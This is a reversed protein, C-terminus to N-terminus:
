MSSSVHKKNSTPVPSQPHSVNNNLLNDEETLLNFAFEDVSEGGSSSETADSDYDEELHELNSRLQGAHCELTEADCPIVEELRKNDSQSQADNQSPHQRLISQVSPDAQSSVSVNNAVHLDCSSSPPIVLSSTLSSVDHTRLLKMLSPAEDSNLSTGLSSGDRENNNTLNNNNNINSASFKLSSSTKPVPIGKSHFVHHNQHLNNDLGKSIRDNKVANVHSQHYDKLPSSSNSAPSSPYHHHHHNNLLVHSNFPVTSRHLHHNAPQRMMPQIQCGIGTLSQERRLFSTIHKHLHRQTQRGQLRHIRQLLSSAQSEMKLFRGAEPEEEQQGTLDQGSSLSPCSSVPDKLQHTTRDDKVEGQVEEKFTKREEDPRADM